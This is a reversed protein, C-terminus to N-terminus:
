SSLSSTLVTIIPDWTYRQKEQRIAHTFREKCDEKFYRVVARALAGSSEPEVLFGNEDEKVAESLGGVDTSIVPTDFSFALQTIGSQTASRYPLVVVDSARFYRGVQENDIFRNHFIVNERLHGKEIRDTYMREDGYVEGAVLLKANPLETLINPMAELLIDLGKYPKIYGFFLIVPEDTIHLQKKFETLDNESHTYFDYNPHRLKTIRDPAFNVLLACASQTVSDSMTILTDAKALAFKTWWDALPWKEHFEINDIIYVIQIRTFRKLLRVIVGFAPAFFPIWYKLILIDPKWAAIKRAAPVWTFPNYPTLVPKIDLSLVMRSPDNQAKGPFLFKPYQKVFSFIRVRHGSQALKGALIAIFQAIGGRHPYAPGLFAIKM